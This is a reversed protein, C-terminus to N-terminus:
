EKIEKRLYLFSSFDNKPQLVIYDKNPKSVTKFDTTWM